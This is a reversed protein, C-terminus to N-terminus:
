VIQKELFLQPNSAKLFASFYPEEQTFDEDGGCIFYGGYKSNNDTIIYDHTKEAGELINEDHYYEKSFYHIAPMPLATPTGYCMIVDKKILNSFKLLTDKIEEWFGIIPKIEVYLESKKLYFDPTYRRSEDLIFTDPEYEWELGLEDFYIAWRVELQSKFKIGKYVTEKAKISYIIPKIEQYIM